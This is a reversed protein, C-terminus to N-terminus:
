EDNRKREKVPIECVELKVLGMLKQTFEPIAQVNWMEVQERSKLLM